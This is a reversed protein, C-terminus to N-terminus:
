KSSVPVSKQSPSLAEKKNDYRDAGSTGAVPITVAQREEERPPSVPALLRVPEANESSANGVQGPVPDTVNLTELSAISLNIPAPHKVDRRPTAQVSAVPAVAAPPPNTKDRSETVQGRDITSVHTVFYFVACIFLMGTAGAVFLWYKILGPSATGVPIACPASLQCKTIKFGNQLAMKQEFVSRCAACYELHSAWKSSFKTGLTECASLSEQFEDCDM